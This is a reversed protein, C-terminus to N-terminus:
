GADTGNDSSATGACVGQEPEAAMLVSRIEDAFVFMKGDENRWRRLGWVARIVEADRRAEATRLEAVRVQAELQRRLEAILDDKRRAEFGHHEREVALTRAAVAAAEIIRPEAIERARTEIHAQLNETVAALHAALQTSESTGSEGATADTGTM